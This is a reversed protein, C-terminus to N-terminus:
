EVATQSWEKLSYTEEEYDRILKVLLRFLATEELTRIKKRSMLNEVIALFQEYEENTEIIKPIIQERDLLNIYSELSITDSM